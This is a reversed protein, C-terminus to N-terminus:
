EAIPFYLHVVTGTHPVSAVAVAGNHKKMIKEAMAMGLGFAKGVGGSKTTFFPQFVKGKIDPTMGVGHDIISLCLYKGKTLEIDSRSETEVEDLHLLLYRDEVNQMAEIANLCLGVIMQTVSFESIEVEKDSKLIVEINFPIAGSKNLNNIVEEITIKFKIRSTQLPGPRVYGRLKSTLLVAKEISAEMLKIQREFPNSNPHLTSIKHKMLDVCGRLSGLLNNFDHAVKGSFKGLTELTETSHEEEKM